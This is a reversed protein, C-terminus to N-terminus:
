KKNVVVLVKIRQKALAERIKIAYTNALGVMPILPKIGALYQAASYQLFYSYFERLILEQQTIDYGGDKLSNLIIQQHKEPVKQWVEALVEGIKPNNYYQAHLLEHSLNQKFKETNVVAFFIFNDGNQDIIPKLAQQDFEQEIAKLTTHETSTESPIMANKAYNVLEKGAFDHGGVTSMLKSNYLQADTAMGMDTHVYLGARLLAANMAVQDSFICGYVPLPNTLDKPLYNNINAQFCIAEPKTSLEKPKNSMPMAKQIQLIQPITQEKPLFNIDIAQEAFAVDHLCIILLAWGLKRTM